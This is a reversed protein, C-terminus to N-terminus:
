TGDCPVAVDRLVATRFRRYGSKATPARRRLDAAVAPSNLLATLQEGDLEADRHLLLYYASHLPLVEGVDLAFRPEHALDPLLIKPQRTLDFTVPDHLAYWPKGWVRVCHRRELDTRHPELHARAGPFDILDVLQPSGGAADFRYPLLLWLGADMLGNVQVDRGRAVPRLLEPEISAAQQVNLVFCRNLGTAVGVSIRQV